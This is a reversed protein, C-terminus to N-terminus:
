YIYIDLRDNFWDDFLELPDEKIIEWFTQFFLFSLGDPGPAEEAYSGFVDERAESETFRRELDLNEQPTVKKERSFFDEKLRINPRDEKKFLERYFYTAVRIM